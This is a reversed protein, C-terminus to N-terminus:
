EGLKPQQAKKKKEYANVANTLAVLLNQADQVSLTVTLQDGQSSSSGKGGGKTMSPRPKLEAKASAGTRSVEAKGSMGM